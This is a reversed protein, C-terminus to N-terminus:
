PLTANIVRVNNAENSEVIINATDATAQLLNMGTLGTLAGSVGVSQGTSLAPTSLGQTSIRASGNIIQSLIIYTSSAGANGNGINRITASVSVMYNTLNTNNVIVTGNTIYNYTLNSVILDPLALASSNTPVSTANVSSNTGNTTLGSTIGGSSKGLSEASIGEDLADINKVSNKPALDPSDRTVFMVLGLVVAIIVIGIVLKSM